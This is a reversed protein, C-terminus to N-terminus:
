KELFPKAIVSYQRTQKGQKLVMMGFINHFKTYNPAIEQAKHCSSIAEDLRNINQCVVDLYNHAEANKPDILLAYSTLNYAAEYKWFQHAIVGLLNMTVSPNQGDLLLTRYIDDTNRLDEAQHFQLTQEISYTNDM